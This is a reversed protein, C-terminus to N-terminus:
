LSRIPDVEKPPRRRAHRRARRAAEDAMAPHPLSLVGVALRQYRAILKRHMDGLGPALPWLHAARDILTVAEAHHGARGAADAAGILKQAEEGLKLTWKEVIEHQPEIRALRRLFHRAERFDKANNSKVILKEVM